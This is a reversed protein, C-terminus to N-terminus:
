ASFFDKVYLPESYSLDTFDKNILKSYSSHAIAPALDIDNLFLSTKLDTLRSWKLAGSGAFVMNSNKVINQFSNNNLVMACPSLIEEMEENFIATYVEMRRADIMPCFLKHGPVSGKTDNIAAMAIANLTGITIFPKDLAYCLGKASAMGVRLGTYSGPGKTTAIADIEKLQLSSRILLDKVALHLFAAHEKQITNRICAILAGDKAISVSATEISTDINLIIAM